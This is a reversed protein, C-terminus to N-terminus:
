KGLLKLVYTAEISAKSSVDVVTTKIFASDVPKKIQQLPINIQTFKADGNSIRYDDAFYKLITFLTDKKNAANLLLVSGQMYVFGNIPNFGTLMLKLQIEEKISVPEKINFTNSQSNLVIADNCTLGNSKVVIGNKQQPEYAASNTATNCAYNLVCCLVIICIMKM